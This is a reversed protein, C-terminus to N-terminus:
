IDVDHGFAIMELAREFEENEFEEPTAGVV